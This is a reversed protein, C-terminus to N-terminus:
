RSTRSSSTLRASTTTGGGVAELRGDRHVVPRGRLGVGDAEAVHDFGVLVPLAGRGLDDPLLPDWGVGKELPEDELKLVERLRVRVEVALVDGEAGGRPARAAVHHPHVPAVALQVDEPVARPAGARSETSALHRNRLGQAEPRRVKPECKRRKVGLRKRGPTMKM